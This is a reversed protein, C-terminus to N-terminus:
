ATEDTDFDDTEDKWSMGIVSLAVDADEGFRTKRLEYGREKLGRSFEIKSQQRLGQSKLDDVFREYLEGYRMVHSPDKDLYKDLFVDLMNSREEYRKRRQDITGENTFHGRMLLARLIGVSKRALNEFEDDSIMDVVNGKEEFKNPFDVILWRRFFGDSKDTTEPLTNTAIVIKAFNLGDFPNKRKIEYGITDQGTLRKLLSTKKFIAKDIEGITCLLRRYLKAGEFVRNALLHIDSSTYNGKGVFRELLRIFSGKGNCGTGILCIIRHLPYDPLLCFAAIEYLTTIYSEDQGNGAVWDEFLKDIMPTEESDGLRWPIPNTIFYEPTAEFQKGTDVDVLMERFQIWTRPAEKPQNERGQKRLAELLSSRFSAKESEIKAWKDVAVMLDVQDVIQWCHDDSSWMWWLKNKDYFFPREKIFGKALKRYITDGEVLEYYNSTKEKQM